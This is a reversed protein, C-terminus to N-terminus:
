IINNLSKTQVRRIIDSCSGISLMVNKKQRIDCEGVLAFRFEKQGNYRLGKQFIGEAWHYDRHSGQDKDYTVPGVQFGTIHPEKKAEQLIRRVFEITNTIQIVTDRDQWTALIREPDTEMTSCWVFIPNLYDSTCRVNNRITVSNGELPDGREPDVDDRFEGLSTFYITGDCILQEAWDRPYAKLIGPLVFEIGEHYFTSM